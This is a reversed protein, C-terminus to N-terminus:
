TTSCRPSWRAMSSASSPSFASTAAGHPAGRRSLAAPLLAPHRVHRAEADRGGPDGLRGHSSRHARGAALYAAPVAAGQHCLGPLVRRVPVARHAASSSVIGSQLQGSHGAPRVHRHPQLAVPHRGADPDLRVHHVSHIERGRLHPARPGVHRDHLVHPDADAEWFVFFLFLDLSVFVGIM